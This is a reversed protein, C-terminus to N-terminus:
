SLCEAPSRPANVAQGSGTTSPFCRTATHRMLAKSRRRQQANGTQPNPSPSRGGGSFASGFTSLTYTEPDASSWIRGSHSCDAARRIRPTSGTTMESAPSDPLPGARGQRHSKSTGDLRSAAAFAIPHASTPTSNASISGPGRQRGLRVGSIGSMTGGAAERMAEYSHTSTRDKDHGFALAVEQSALM